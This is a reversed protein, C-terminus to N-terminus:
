ERILNSQNKRNQKKINYGCNPCATAETSIEKNCEPCNILAM